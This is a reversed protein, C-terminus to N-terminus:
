PTHGAEPDAHATPMDSGYAETSWARRPRGGADVGEAPANAAGAPMTSMQPVSTLGQAQTSAASGGQEEAAWEAKVDEGLTHVINCAVNQLADELIKLEGKTSAHLFCRDKLVAKLVELRLDRRVWERLYM